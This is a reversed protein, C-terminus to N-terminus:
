EIDIPHSFRYPLNRWIKWVGNERRWEVVAKISGSDIDIGPVLNIVRVQASCKVKAKDTEYFDISDISYNAVKVDMANFRSQTCSAIDNYTSTADWDNGFNQSIRNLVTDLQESGLAAQLERHADAIEGWQSDAHVETPHTDRYPLNRYVKWFNGEKRWIADFVYTKDRVTEESSLSKLKIKVETRVRAMEEPLFESDKIQWSVESFSFEKFLESFHSIVDNWNSSTDWDNLFSPSVYVKLLEIDGRLLIHRLVSNAEKIFIEREIIQSAATSVANKVAALDLITTAVATDPLQLCLKLATVVETVSAEYERARIDAPTLNKGLTLGQQWILAEATLQLNISLKSLDNYYLEDPSVRRLLAIKGSEAKIVLEESFPVGSLSFNGSKDAQASIEGASIRFSSFDSITTLTQRLSSALDTEVIEPLEIQGSLNFLNSDPLSNFRLDGKGTCGNFLILMTMLVLSYLPAGYRKGPRFKKKSVSKNSKM